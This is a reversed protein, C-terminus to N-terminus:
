EAKSQKVKAQHLCQKVVTNKFRVQASNLLTSSSHHLLKKSLIAIVTVHLVDSL